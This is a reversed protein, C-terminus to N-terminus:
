PCKASLMKVGTVKMSHVQPDNGPVATGTIEVKHGLHPALNATSDTIEVTKPGNGEVDTLKFTGPDAGKQLCGTMSHEKAEQQPTQQPAQAYLGSGVGGAFFLAMVILSRKMMM